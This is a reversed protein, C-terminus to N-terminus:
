RQTRRDRKSEKKIANEFLMMLETMAHLANIAVDSSSCNSVQALEHELDIDGGAKDLSLLIIGLLWKATPEYELAHERLMGVIAGDTDNHPTGIGVDNFRLHDIIDDFPDIM